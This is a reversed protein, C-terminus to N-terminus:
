TKLKCEYNQVRGQMKVVEPVLHYTDSITRACNQGRPQLVKKM